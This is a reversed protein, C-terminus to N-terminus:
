PVVPYEAGSLVAQCNTAVFVVPAGATNVEDFVLQSGGIYVSLEDTALDTWVVSVAPVFGLYPHNAAIWAQLDVELLAADVSTNAYPFNALTINVGDVQISSIALALGEMAYDCMQYSPGDHTATPGMLESAFVDKDALGTLRDYSFGRGEDFVDIVTLVVTDWGDIHGNTTKLYMTVTDTPVIVVTTAAGYIKKKGQFREIKM